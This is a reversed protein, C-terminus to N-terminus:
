IYGLTGCYVFTRERQGHTKEKGFVLRFSVCMKEACAYNKRGCIVTFFLVHLFGMTEEPENVVTYM